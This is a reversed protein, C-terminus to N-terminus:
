GNPDWGSGEETYGGSPDPGPGTERPAGDPDPGHGAKFSRGNPDWTSGAETFRGDPDWTSGAELPAGDPDVGNGEKSFFQPGTARVGWPSLTDPSPSAKGYMSTWWQWWTVVQGPAAATWGLSFPSASVAAPWALAVLLAAALPLVLRRSPRTRRSRNM